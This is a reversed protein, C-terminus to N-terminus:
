LTKQRKSPPGYKSQLRKRVKREMAKKYEVFIDDEFSDEPDLDLKTGFAKETYYQIADVKSFIDDSEEDKENSEEAEEYFFNPLNYVCTALVDGGNIAITTRMSNPFSVFWKGGNETPSKTLLLFTRDEDQFIDLRRGM